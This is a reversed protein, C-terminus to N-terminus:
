TTHECVKDEGRKGERRGKGDGAFIKVSTRGGMHPLLVRVYVCSIQGCKPNNSKNVSSSYAPACGLPLGM